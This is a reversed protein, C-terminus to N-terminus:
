PRGAAEWAEHSARLRGWVASREEPPVDDYALEFHDIVLEWWEDGTGLDCSEVADPSVVTYVCGRVNGRLNKLTTVFPHNELM